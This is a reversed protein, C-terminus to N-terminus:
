GFFIFRNRNDYESLTDSVNLLPAAEGKAVKMDHFRQMDTLMRTAQKMTLSPVMMHYPYYTNNKETPMAVDVHVGLTVPGKARARKILKLVDTPTMKVTDSM